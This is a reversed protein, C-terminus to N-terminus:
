SFKRFNKLRSSLFFLKEVADTKEYNKILKRVNSISNYVYGLLEISTSCKLFISKRLMLKLVDLDPVSKENKLTEYKM